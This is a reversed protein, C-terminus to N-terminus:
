TLKAIEDSRETLVDGVLSFTSPSKHLWAMVNYGMPAEKGKQLIISYKIWDCTGYYRRDPAVDRCVLCQAVVNYLEINSLLYRCSIFSLVITIRGKNTHLYQLLM